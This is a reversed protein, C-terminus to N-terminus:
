VIAPIRNKRICVMRAFEAEEATNFGFKRFTNYQYTIKFGWSTGNHQIGTKGFSNDIRVRQNLMNVSNTVFRCNDPCYDKNNDKRDIQLNSEWGNNIAWNIFVETNRWEQCVKIGRGGYDSYRYYNENYCRTMINNWLKYIPHKRLGHKVYKKM